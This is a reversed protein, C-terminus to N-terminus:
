SDQPKCSAMQIPGFLWHYLDIKKLLYSMHLELIYFAIVEKMWFM